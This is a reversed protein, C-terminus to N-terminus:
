LADEGSPMVIFESVIGTELDVEAGIYGWDKEDAGFIGNIIGLLGVEYGGTESPGVQVTPHDALDNNCHVRFGVLKSIADQDLELASNLYEVAEQVSIRIM